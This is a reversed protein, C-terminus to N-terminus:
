YKNHIEQMKGLLSNNTFYHENNLRSYNIPHAHEEGLASMCAVPDSEGIHLPRPGCM